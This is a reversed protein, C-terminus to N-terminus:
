VSVGFLGRTMQFDINGNVLSRPTEDRSAAALVTRMIAHAWFKPDGNLLLDFDDSPRQAEGSELPAVQITPVLPHGQMLGAQAYGLILQIGTAGLGTLTEVWHRTPTDMIHFGPAIARQGYDLSPRPVPATDFIGTNFIASWLVSASSPVIVTGGAAVITRTWQALSAALDQSLEGQTILGVSLQDLGVRETRPAATGSLVQTFWDQIKLITREIGGDLQISAWGFRARDVGHAGLQLRMYGNHTMECGHELFLGARAMPHLMYNILTRTYLLKASDGAMGCGETHALAVFRRIGQALGIGERELQVAALKAVEGACLSTPAILGVHETALREGVRQLTFKFEEDLPTDARISIAEGSPVSTNSLEALPHTRSQRWNRWLSVQSHGAREGVSRRGSAIDVTLDLARETLEDMSTGDLYAGANVDMENRLLEYRATTTVIKVTPVFPFNTISGNGTTFVILNCGAAVQGAVSELDNGPSNMFYFGPLKMPEAYDIAYDLRLAPDKKMAAGLSKLAINYLGRYRNGSSPNGEPTIGHWGLYESFRAIYNLFAQATEFDRVNRLIYSEAGVLEDTEALNAAGGFRVIERAVAGALPNGSIGSFADSGGCQLGIKLESLAVSSRTQALVHELWGEILGTGRALDAEFPGELSIFAHPVDNLASDHSALAARLDSNTIPDGPHDVALVAGVNPHVMFGALTRLVLARNNFRDNLTDDRWLGSDVVAISNRSSVNDSGETHAVAVVGDFNPDRSMSARLREALVRAYSAARSTVGLIVIHNRTGVGRGGGRPYGTFYRPLSYPAIQEGPRFASKALIYPELQDRFNPVRPIEFDLDRERLADLMAANCVYEAPVIARTAYGFPLGWSLLADGPALPTVAFRHGELVTSDLQFTTGGNTVHTGRELRRTAIAVNDGHAPLRAIEDLRTLYPMTQCNPLKGRLERASVHVELLM